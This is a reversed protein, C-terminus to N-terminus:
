AKRVARACRIQSYRKCFRGFRRCTGGATHGGRQLEVVLSVHAHRGLVPVDTRGHRVRDAPRPERATSGCCTGAKSTSHRTQSSCYRASTPTRLCFHHEFQAQWILAGASNLKDYLEDRLNEAVLAEWRDLQLRTAVGWSLVLRHKM